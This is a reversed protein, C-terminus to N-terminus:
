RLGARLENVQKALADDRELETEMKRCAYLITTHDRGGFAVGLRALSLGTLQRALYMALHRARLPGRLRSVGFLEKERVGLAAAVRKVIASVTLVVSTPQGTKALTREVDARGLPTPLGKATQVLNQLWGLATRVGDTSREALLDLAPDTLRVGKAAAADALILRRSPASLPELHVVLGAALRSTLRRPLHTLGSPGTGATVVTARRRRDRHDLLECAAGATRASLHQVDELALLDSTLLDHDTFGEDPSRALDGASVHRVTIGSSAAALDAALAALLHSKGTGPPGHLVLPNATLRKRGRVARSVSDVARAASRNEPLVLFGHWHSVTPAPAVPFGHLAGESSVAPKPTRSVTNM